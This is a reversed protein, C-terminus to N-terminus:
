RNEGNNSINTSLDKAILYPCNLDHKLENMKVYITSGGDTLEWFKGNSYCSLKTLGKLSLPNMINKKLKGSLLSISKEEKLTLLADIQKNTLKM